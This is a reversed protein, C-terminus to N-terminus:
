NCAGSREVTPLGSATVDIATVCSLEVRELVTLLDRQKSEINTATGFEVTTGGDIQATVFGLQDFSVDSLRSLVDLSLGNLVKVAGLAAASAPQGVVEAPAPGQAILFGEPLETTQGLIFGDGTVLWYGTPATIALQPAHDTVTLVVDGTWLDRDLNAAAVTGLAQVNEIIQDPDLLILSSGEAIESSEAILAASTFQNGQVIIRDVAFLPTALLVVASAVIFVLVVIAKVVPRSLRSEAASQLRPKHDYYRSARIPM